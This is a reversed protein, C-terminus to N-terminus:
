VLLARVEARHIEACLSGPGEIPQECSRLCAAYAAFHRFLFVL